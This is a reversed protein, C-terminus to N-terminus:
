ENYKGGNLAKYIELACMKAGTHRFHIIPINNIKAKDVIHYYKTHSINSNQICVIDAHKFAEKNMKDYFSAKPVLKKMRKLWSSHGGFIIINVDPVYPFVRDALLIDDTEIKQRRRRKNNM